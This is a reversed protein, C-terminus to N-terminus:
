AHTTPQIPVVSHIPHGTTDVEHRITEDAPHTNITITTKPSPQPAPAQVQPADTFDMQNGCCTSRRLRDMLHLAVGVVQLLLTIALLGIDVSGAQQPVPLTTNM